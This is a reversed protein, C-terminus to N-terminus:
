RLPYSDMLRKIRESRLWPGILDSRELGQESLVLRHQQQCALELRGLEALEPLDDLARSGFREEYQVLDMGKAQLLSLIVHRRRRDEEDIVVGYDAQAFAEPSKASYAAILEDVAAPSVAFPSSYHLYETYSRAGCGLGVM